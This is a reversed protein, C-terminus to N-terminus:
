KNRRIATFPSSDWFNMQRAQSLGISRDAKTLHMETPFSKRYPTKEDIPGSETLFHYTNAESLIASYAAADRLAM